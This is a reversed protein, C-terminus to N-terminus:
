PQAKEKEAFNDMAIVDQGYNKMGPMVHDRTMNLEGHIVSGPWSEAYQSDQLDVWLVKVQGDNVNEPVKVKVEGHQWSLAKELSEIREAVKQARIEEKKKAVEQRRLYAKTIVKEKKPEGQEKAEGEGAEGEKAEGAEKWEGEPGEMILGSDEKAEGSVEGGPQNARFLEEEQIKLVAAIDAVSTAKQNMVAKRRDKPEMLKGVKGKMKEDFEEAKKWDAPRKRALFEETITIMYRPPALQRQISFERLLHFARLGVRSDNFHVSYYPVWM